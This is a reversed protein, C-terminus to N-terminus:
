IADYDDESAFDELKEKLLKGTVVCIPNKNSAVLQRLEEKDYYVGTSAMVLNEKKRHFIEVEEENKYFISENFNDPVKDPLEDFDNCIKYSEIFEKYDDKANLQTSKKALQEYKSRDSKYTDLIDIEIPAEICPDALINRIEYIIDIIHMSSTYKTKILDLCIKGEKSVNLHYPVTFFTVYPYHFPYENPFSIYLCWWKNKYPTGNPGKFYAIWRDFNSTYTFIKLDQDKNKMAYYIERAIRRQRPMDINTELNKSIFSQPTSVFISIKIKEKNIIEVDFTSNKIVNNTFDDTIKDIKLRSPITSRDGKILPNINGKRFSTDIFAKQNFLSFAKYMDNFVFSFGGSAHSVACLSKCTKKSNLIVSDVIIKHYILLKVIKICNEKSNADEEDTIVIIRTQLDKFKENEKKFQIIENISFYISDWLKSVSKLEINSLAEELSPSVSNLGKKLLVEDNFSVLGIFNEYEQNKEFISVCKKAITLRDCKDSNPPILYGEIDASMLFSANVNFFIIEKQNCISMVNEIEINGQEYSFSTIDKLICENTMPDYIKAKFGNETDKENMMYLYNCEKGKIISYDPILPASLPSIIKFQSELNFANDIYKINEIEIDFFPDEEKDDKNYFHPQWYYCNIKKEIMYYRVGGIIDDFMTDSLRKKVFIPKTELKISSPLNNINALLSCLNLSYEFVRDNPVLSNPLFGRFFTYLTSCFTVIDQNTIQYVNIMKRKCAFARFLLDSKQGGNIIYAILCRMDCIGKESSEVLPSILMKNDLNTKNVSTCFQDKLMSDDINSNAIVGYVFKNPNKGDLKSDSEIPNGGSDYILLKKGKLDIKIKNLKDKLLSQCQPESEIGALQVTIGNLIHEKTSGTFSFLFQENLTKSKTLIAAPMAKITPIGYKTEDKLCFIKRMFEKTPKLEFTKSVFFFLIM